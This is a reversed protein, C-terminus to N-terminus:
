CISKMKFDKLKNLIEKISPTLRTANEEIFGDIGRLTESYINMARFASFPLINRERITQNLVGITTYIASLLMIPDNPKDGGFKALQPSSLLINWAVDKLVPMPYAHNVAKQRIDELLELNVTLEMIIARKIRDFERRSSVCSVVIHTIISSIGIANIISLITNADLM